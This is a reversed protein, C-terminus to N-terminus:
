ACIFVSSRLSLNSFSVSAALPNHVSVLGREDAHM